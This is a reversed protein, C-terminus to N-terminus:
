GRNDPHNFEAELRKIKNELHEIFGTINLADEVEPNDYQKLFFGQQSARAEIFELIMEIQRDAM